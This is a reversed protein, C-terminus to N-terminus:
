KSPREIIRSFMRTIRHRWFNSLQRLIFGPIMVAILVNFWWVVDLLNWSRLKISLCIESWLLKPARNKLQIFGQHFKFKPGVLKVWNKIPSQDYYWEQTATNQGPKIRAKITDYEIMTWEYGKELYQKVIMPCEIFRKNSGYFADKKFAMGSPNCSSTLINRDRCTMIAGPYGNMYQYYYRGVIGLRPNAYFQNVYDSVVMPHTFSDDGCLYIIYHGKANEMLKVLNAGIGINEENVILRVPYSRVIEATNDKSCDDIVLIECLNKRTRQELASEISDRIVKSQNYAPIAITIIPRSM